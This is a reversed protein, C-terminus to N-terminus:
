VACGNRAHRKPFSSKHVSKQKCDVSVAQQKLCVMCKIFRVEGRAVAKRGARQLAKKRLKEFLEKSLEFNIKLKEEKLTKAM